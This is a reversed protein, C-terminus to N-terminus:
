PESRERVPCEGECAKFDAEIKREIQILKTIGATMAVAGIRLVILVTSERAKANGGERRPDQGVRGSCAPHRSSKPRQPGDRHHDWRSVFDMLQGAQYYDNWHQRSRYVEAGDDGVGVFRGDPWGPVASSQAHLARRM